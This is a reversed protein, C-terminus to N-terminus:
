AVAYGTHPRVKESKFGLVIRDKPIGAAELDGAVGQETGDRQIWFKGDILDIHIVCGHIRHKHWGVSMLLYHDRQRDFVLQREIEGYAYPYQAYDTLVREILDRDADRRPDM